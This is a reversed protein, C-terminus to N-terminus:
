CPPAHRKTRSRCVPGERLRTIHAGVLLANMMEKRSAVSCFTPWLSIKVVGDLQDQGLAVAAIGTARGVIRGGAMLLAVVKGGVMLLAVIDRARTTRRLM